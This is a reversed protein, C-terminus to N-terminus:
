ELYEELQVAAKAMAVPSYSKLQLTRGGKSSEMKYTITAWPHRMYWGGSARVLAALAAAESFRAAFVRPPGKQQGLGGQRGLQALRGAEAALRSMLDDLADAEEEEPTDPMVVTIRLEPM